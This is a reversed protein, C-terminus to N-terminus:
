YGVSPIMWIVVLDEKRIRTFLEELFREDYIRENVM